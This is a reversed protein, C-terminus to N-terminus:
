DAAMSHVRRDVVAAPSVRAAMPIAAPIAAPISVTVQHTGGKDDLQIFGGPVAEGDLDIALDIAGRRADRRVTIEYVTAGHRYSMEFGPWELPISPDVTLRDGRVQLGLVEEIWIRYMWAASGTYWTWGSQGVRGKAASVDASVVYPEGRYRASDEPQRSLEIPNMLQLLRAASGGERMRAWAMAMWLSGHTYQGGNERLGAPYGMIYGPNPESHEFPPTFLLVLKDKDRVLQRDASEMAQRARAQDGARSIVAWSQPLSDIRAEENNHSGLPLGNDFYARLYWEGDWATNEIATKMSRARDRWATCAAEAANEALQAFAELVACLFWGLWVSEGKGEAGVLNMGDNWDGNGMLPLQHPGLQWGRDLARVCHEWVRATQTSVVPTFMREHEGEGLVPGEIFPVEEDLIGRDGTVKIYQAVTFPLWLLDDSCRTRVGMGTEAHWWHQVDGELFQRAAATLIHKRTLQPAAYAFAMSDQLQDRFGFAGGSQYLASRGWFRCSLSQYLLWRNLLLDVSLVPTKVQVARLTSDWWQRTAGLASEIGASDQYRGLIARVNEVSDAQGLLFTVETQQGRELKVNVQLAACPDTGAGSRNDLRLRDLAAPNSTSGNRGLVQVRDSSWSNAKPSSAAFAFQGKWAGNWYQRALIAGSAEDRSPQVHLQQDERNAGLVWDNFWTVTIRRPRSSDNRLKLRCVKVPDGAGDQGTPVFVTLEQGIAHSNHEFVSYGQGHRARYADKERKPLATPTWIAGSEDDRLYIVESQPDGVPDNHWPTLRNSQSNGFWTFGLGSESVMTGFNANAIVNVWPTPTTAGPKLYIAYEKGDQTFGGMGNFYPLELFPLPPSPEEPGGGVAVFTPTPLGEISAVLQQQLSGRTGSLLINASSLILTRHEEPIAHWDRLFVGGSRDMGAEAAHGEIQQLIQTRLPQDYSPAEQNLIVLDARFGRLRWYAHAVLVERVLSLHRADSLTIAVIPLDGSIGYAWLGDQGLRNRALRDAPPRLRPNPYILQSALEQFRHAAGPGIGLFRFELQTGTWAMEFARSVAGAGRYKLALALVAERTSAAVTVFTLEQRERPDLSLRCRLSFIPDVVTGASGSLRTRLTGPNEPTRGRGLFKARDTEYQIGTFMEVGVLIHAAWIPSEGPARPRRHAILVGPEPCETEVFMKSFAPHAKDAAHPALALELYSTLELNRTRLSRNVIRMRRLEADDEVAVAIDVTTEIGSVRRRIEAREAAFRVTTEGLNSGLPKHSSGWADDSRLDRIYIFTGWPDLTPDSRWRTLDFENWRSYGGGSNTVMLAYRGNGHLHVRPAATEETWVRDAADEAAIARIPAHSPKTEVIPLRTIPIGEFLLTEVSRVRLDGHFRRQMADRHLVNDLAALSMGQHHAMYCRILIGRAGGRRNAGSFDISEYFGMPGELNLNKLRELNGAAAAPNVLLALVSSYPSVVLRDQMAPNLALAPAGFAKYQYIQHADLAGYASESIGWPINNEDGFEIQREVATQCAYDLMSNSFTRTFVLPMLYEFMTGSWSLLAQGSRSGFSKAYSYPRSLAFWHETPLDGKAIAVLSALRCESAMLDYYSAFERPGGVAYGVGFLKREADYLFRMNIGDALKGANAVLTELSKVTQAANARATGYEAALRDLWSALEPRLDRSTRWALMTDVLTAPGGAEGAGTSNGALAALSPMYHLARRRLKVADQGIALLSSDPPSALTEMWRLYREVTETWSALEAALRSAWYLREDTGANEPATVHGPPTVHWRQAEQLKRIPAIAMRYRAILEHGERSTSRSSHLARRLADLAVTASPDDGCKDELIALTDSLGRLGAHGLIPARLIDQCGQELVWLSAVLNGSDVTSVYRPNLPELTRTDYWNLLHGEYREMRGLTEMTLSCRRSFEDPTLYGFDRAALASTLWFGINTPSTRQAVEVRLALQTNDPPLWNSDPGTLDDFFRWTQRAIRRLFRTEEGSLKTHARSPAPRALWRMLLPSGAWLIVFVSTPAFQGKWLLAITLPASLASIVVLQRFTANRHRHAAERAGDATQWELLKRRSVSRRYFVRVIADVSLWAQHPLFAIMVVARFMEDAAGQWRHVTGQIRRALRDLLPTAAPIAVTLWVVLSWVGPAVSTLWGLLLLLLAAVPVLSRRLNDLIRWRNIISLPNPAMGGGAASVSHLAWRAIQWDGRLWRHQRAAFSGYDVPLHEFLEIDSALGVGVHAGEILDHSLLTDPPFRHHLITHFAKVDYIAKGHFMAERFLDQQADSVTRSYPDTGTADAFIRTFRTATAGPLTISVRPQIITYGRKRVRTAADIEVKNLPHSITEILRRAAETPLQTDSDLTIVYSIRPPQRGTDLIGNAEGNLFANLDELKGRKRERGIWKQESGSWTRPRHFLLFRDGAQVAAPLPYRANLGAIGARAAELLAADKSTSEASADTFDPFLSFYINANRNGLFRVELKELEARVVEASTLMMPIVVLTADEAPIGDRLDLKPLPDPPLLSIVLANIIQISLESLPFLALIVLAILFGQGHVGAEWALLWALVTFCLALSTIAALYVPTAHRCAARILRTGPPVRAKTVAELQDLGGSLLYYMVHGARADNSAEALGAMGIARRAVDVEELGSYRSVKEVIRRSMDRTAFDSRQYVGAPDKRLEAEVPSVDEFIKTYDLRGLARLSGFANSTSVTESAERTHQARVVEILSEGFRSEIWHQAPGLAMEEDQLQEALATVFHPQRVIPETELYQLMKEFASNDDARGARAGTALRNAWLYASERLQQGESVRVALRTLAEILAIRLFLPFAWLEAIALPHAAQYETLCDRINAETICYGTKAVLERAINKLGRHGNSRPSWASQDRPLHRVVETIQTHILYSNDLIWEAAPSLEHELRAAESLDTCARSLAASDQRLRTLITSRTLPAADLALLDERPSDLFIWEHGFDPRVVFIAPSGNLRIATVVDEVKDPEAEAVLLSEGELRLNAYRRCSDAIDKTADARVVCVKALRQLSKFAREAPEDGSPYFALVIRLPRIIM